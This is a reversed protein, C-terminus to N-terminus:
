INARNCIMQQLTALEERLALIQARLIANEQELLAARFAIRDERVKRADRSKKAAENNRKRREFYKEDKQEEPIPRKEGRQRRSLICQFHDISSPLNAPTLNGNSKTANTPPSILNPPIALTTENYGGNGGDFRNIDNPLRDCTNQNETLNNVSDNQLRNSVQTSPTPSCTSSVTMRNPSSPKKPIANNPEAAPQYEKLTTTTSKPPNIAPPIFDTPAGFGFAGNTREFDKLLATPTVLRNYNRLLQFASFSDVYLPGNCMKVKM